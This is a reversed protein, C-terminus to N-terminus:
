PSLSALIKELASERSWILPPQYLQQNLKQIKKGDSYFVIGSQQCLLTGGAIDWLNKPRLSIVFDTKGAALLALKYAISGMPKVNLSSVSYLGQKHESRSVLGAQLSEQRQPRPYQCLSSYVEHNLFNWVLGFNSSDDIQDTHLVAMALACEKRGAILERTGDVPDIVFAPYKLQHECEESYPYLKKEQYSHSFSELFIENLEQDFNTVPTGDAKQYVQLDNIKLDKKQFFAMALEFKRM